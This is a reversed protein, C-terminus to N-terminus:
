SMSGYPSSVYLVFLVGWGVHGRFHSRGPVYPDIGTGNGVAPDSVRSHYECCSGLQSRCAAHRNTRGMGGGVLLDYGQVAGAEDTIVVIGLDNTLLDVSNDGPVTIAIKFKRPLFLQGYIPEPSGEFNTGFGNFARAETVAPDQARAPSEHLLLVTVSCCCVVYFAASKAADNVM